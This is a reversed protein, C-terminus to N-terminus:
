YSRYISKITTDDYDKFEQYLENILDKKDEKEPYFLYRIKLLTILKDDLNVESESSSQQKHPIGKKDTLSNLYFVEFCEKRM